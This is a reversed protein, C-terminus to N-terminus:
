CGCFSTMWVRAPRAAEECSRSAAARAADMNAQLTCRRDYRQVFHLFASRLPLDGRVREDGIVDLFHSCERTLFPWRSRDHAAATLAPGLRTEEHPPILSERHKICSTTTSALGVQGSLGVAQIGDAGNRDRVEAFLM